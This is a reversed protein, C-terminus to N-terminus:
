VTISHLIKTIAVSLNDSVSLGLKKRLNMRHWEVTRISSYLINAIDKNEMHLSLFTAVKLETSTLSPYKTGLKLIVDEHSEDLTSNFFQWLKSSESKAALVPLLTHLQCSTCVEHQSASKMIQQNIYSLLENKEILQLILQHREQILAKEKTQLEDITALHQTNEIRVKELEITSLRFKSQQLTYQKIASEKMLLHKKYCDLAKGIDGIQEYITAMISLTDYLKVKDGQEESLTYATTCYELALSLQKDALFISALEMYFYPLENLTPFTKYIDLGDLGYLLANTFDGRNKYAKAIILSTAAKGKIDQIDTRLQLCELALNLGEEINGTEILGFAVNHMALATKFRFPLKRYCELSHTHYELAEAYRKMMGYTNGINILVEASGVTYSITRCLSLSKEYISLANEHDNYMLYVNAINNLVTSSGLLDNISTKLSLSIEYNVLAQAYNGTKIDLNGLNMYMQSQGYVDASTRWFEFAKQYYERSQNYRQCIEHLEGKLSYNYAQLGTLGYQLIIEMSDNMYQDALTLNQLKLYISALSSLTSATGQRDGIAKYIDLAQNSYEIAQEMNWSFVQYYKSLTFLAEAIGPHYEISKALILAEKCMSIGREPETFRIVFALENLLAVKKVKKKSKSIALELQKIDFENHKKM